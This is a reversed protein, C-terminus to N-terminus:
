AAGKPSGLNVKIASANGIEINNAIIDMAMSPTFRRQDQVAILMGVFQSAVALLDEAPLDKGSDGLAAKLQDLFATHRADPQKTTQRM